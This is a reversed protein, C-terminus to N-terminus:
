QQSKKDHKKSRWIQPYVPKQGFKECLNNMEEKMEIIRNERDVMAKNFIELEETHKNLAEEAQKRTTIDSLIHVVEKVKGSEDLIPDATFDFWKEGMKLVLKERIKTQRSKQAPCDKINEETGHIMKWYTQGIIDDNSKGLYDLMAQNCRSIKNDEDLICVPDNMADFTTQWQKISHQLAEESKKRDTIDRYIGYVAVMKDEVIIPSGLVSVHIKTGNKSQRVAEFTMKEGEAVRKTFEAAEDHLKSPALLDDVSRGKVEELPYGFLRTFEDNVRLVRGEKDAMVIAEQASEFLQDIYASKEALLLRVNKQKQQGKFFVIALIIVLGLCAT